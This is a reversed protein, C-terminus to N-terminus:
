FNIYHTYLIVGRSGRNEEIGLSRAWLRLEQGRKAIAKVRFHQFISFCYSIMLMPLFFILYVLLAGM